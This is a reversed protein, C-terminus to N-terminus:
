GDGLKNGSDLAQVIVESTTSVAAGIAHNAPVLDYRPPTTSSFDWTGTISEDNAKIAIKEFFCPASNSLILTAGGSHTKAFTTSAAYPSIPSLGRSVGTFTASGDGNQTVGTFSFFERKTRGPELTGCGIDGFDSMTLKQSTGPVTLSTVTISSATTSIGQKLYYAEGSVPTFGGVSPGSNFASYGLVGGSIILLVGIVRKTDVNM